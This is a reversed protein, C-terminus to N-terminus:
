STSRSTTPPSRWRRGCSPGGPPRPRARAPCLDPRLVAPPVARAGRELAAIAQASTTSAASSACRRPMSRRSASRCATSAPRASPRSAAGGRRQDPQGGAHDRPRRARRVARPADDILAAATEPEMLSPTGGGFFISALPRRGRMPGAERALEAGCPAARLAGPRHPGACPQQLRLVPMERRLVALPPLARPTGDPIAIYPKGGGRLVRIHGQGGGREVGGQQGHQEDHEGQPHDLRPASAVMHREARRVPQHFARHPRMAIAGFVDGEAQHQEPRSSPM